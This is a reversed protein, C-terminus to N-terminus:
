FCEIFYDLIFDLIFGEILGAAGLSEMTDRFMSENELEEDVLEPSGSGASSSSISHSVISDSQEIPLSCAGTNSTSNSGVGDWQAGLYSSFGRTFEDLTLFGNKEADLTDFVEELLDPTLGLPERMRQIDKKNIFGKEEADCLRFLEAARSQLLARLQELDKIHQENEYNELQQYEHDSNTEEKM